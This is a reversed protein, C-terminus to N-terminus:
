CSVKLLRGTFPKSREGERRVHKRIKREIEERVCIFFFAISFFDLQM